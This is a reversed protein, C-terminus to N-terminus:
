AMSYRAVPPDNDADAEFGDCRLVPLPPYRRFAADLDSRGCRLFASGRASEVVRAWRCTACLGPSPPTPMARTYGDLATPGQM